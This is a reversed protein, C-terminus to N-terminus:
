KAQDKLDENSDGQNTKELFKRKLENKCAIVDHNGRIEIPLNLFLKQLEIITSAGNLKMITNQVTETAQKLKFNEFERMEEDSAVNGDAAYGLMALARGVAITETKEFGKEAEIKKATATATGNADCSFKAEERGVVGSALMKLLETNDKWVYANFIYDGNNDRTHETWIKSRPNNSRFKVLRVAVKAYQVSGKINITEMTKNAM